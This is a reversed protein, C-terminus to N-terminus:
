QSEGWCDITSKRWILVLKTYLLLDETIPFKEYKTYCHSKKGEQIGCHIWATVEVFPIEIRGSIGRSAEEKRKKKDENLSQCSGLLGQWLKANGSLQGILRFYLNINKEKLNTFRILSEALILQRRRFLLLVIGSSPKISDGARSNTRRTYMLPDLIILPKSQLSLRYKNNTRRDLTLLKCWLFTTGQTLGM